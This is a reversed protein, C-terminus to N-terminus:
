WTVSSVMQCIWMIVLMVPPIRIGDNGMELQGDVYSASGTNNILEGDGSSVSDEASDTFSYRHKLDAQVDSALVAVFLLSAVGLMRTRLISNM